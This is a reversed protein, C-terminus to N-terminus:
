HRTPHAPLLILRDRVQSLMMFIMHRLPVSPPVPFAPFPPHNVPISVQVSVHLPVIIALLVTKMETRPSRLFVDRLHLPIVGLFLGVLGADSVHM